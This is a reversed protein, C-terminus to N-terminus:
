MGFDGRAAQGAREAKPKGSKAQGYWNDLMGGALERGGLGFALGAALSIAGVAGMFMTNILNAAIGVQNVAVIIAFVWVATRAVNALTEPNDFGAEVTAGRVVNGLARAGIGGIVLIVLAVILNPIWLLLQRLVDAVGPLGLVDFAVLLVVIRILWKVLAAVLQSADTRDGMKRVFGAIGIREAVENFKVAHLVAAVARAVLGAILWGILLIIIFGLIRPIASFLMTFAGMLSAMISQGWSLTTAIVPATQAATGPAATTTVTQLLLSLSM